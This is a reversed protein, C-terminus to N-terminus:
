AFASAGIVGLALFQTPLLVHESESNFNDLQDCTQREAAKARTRRSKKGDAGVAHSANLDLCPFDSASATDPKSVTAGVAFSSVAKVSSKPAKAGRKEDPHQFKCNAELRCFGKSKWHRCVMVSKEADVSAPQEIGIDAAPNKPTPVSLSPDLVRLNDEIHDSCNDDSSLCSFLSAFAGGDDTESSEELVVPYVQKTTQQPVSAFYTGQQYFQADITTPVYQQRSLLDVQQQRPWSHQQLLASQLATIMQEVFPECVARLMERSLPTLFDSAQTSACDGYAEMSPTLGWCMPSPEPTRVAWPFQEHKCAGPTAACPTPTFLMGAFNVPSTAM